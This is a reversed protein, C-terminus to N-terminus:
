QVSQAEPDMMKGLSRIREELENYLEACSEQSARHEARKGLTNWNGIVVLRKRARTLAVNLRRPGEDPITLFGSEGTHNSRVLSVIIAEREGGQFADVTNVAVQHIGGIDLRRLQKKIENVQASYAAIVGIDNLNLGNISLLKVQKAVAEAEEINYYSHGSAQQQETGNIHIGMLPSLDEITWDRNQDATDLKGDYFANNPFHAITENMRYQTRLMVAIDDGYRDILSEFLSPRQEDGYHEDSASFPPLQKHDGALILKESVSFAIATAARSAQTAEDVVAVDFSDTNFKSAGSTTAAVIDASGASVGGYYRRVVPNETRDGTRAITINADDEQAMAHLTQPEPEDISSDGVLLNDVAQNSHAAVLVQKGNDVAERVYATLTRTKGTGPPGHICLCDNAAKAWILAKLQTDNLDIKPDPVDYKDSEFTVKRNGSLLHRKNRNQQVENIADLRRAFPLPNLLPHLWVTADDDTLADDQPSGPSIRGDLPSLWLETDGVYIAEMEIQSIGERGRAGVIYENEPFVGADDRLTPEADSEEDSDVLQFKYARRGQYPEAGMPLLPGSMVGRHIASELGLNAYRDRNSEKATSRESKVLNRMEDFFVSTEADSLQTTSTITEPPVQSEELVHIELESDPLWWRLRQGLRTTSIKDIPYWHIGNDRIKVEESEPNFYLYEESPRPADAEYLPIVHQNDSIETNEVNKIAQKCAEAVSVPPNSYETLSARVLQGDRRSWNEFAKNNM